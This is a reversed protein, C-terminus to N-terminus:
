LQFSSRFIYCHLIFEVMMRYDIHIIRAQMLYLYICGLLTEANLKGRLELRIRFGCARNRLQARTCSTLANILGIRKLVPRQNIVGCEMRETKLFGSFLLGWPSYSVSTARLLCCLLIVSDPYRHDIAESRIRGWPRRALLLRRGRSRDM